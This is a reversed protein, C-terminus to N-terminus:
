GAGDPRNGSALRARLDIWSDAFGILALLTAMHPMALLLLAYVAVLWGVSARRLGVVAHVVALGQLFWAAVLLIDLYSLWHGGAAGAFASLGLVGLTAWALPRGLRLQHFEQRFGGPNYLMAQWWRGLLLAVQTQLLFGAAIVGPMWAAMTLLLGERDTAAVIGAEVLSQVFPELAERWTAVPDGGQTYQAAIVVLGMLLGVQLALGLSRSARLVGGLLWVPLWMMLVFSVVPLVVGLALLSLLACALTAIGTLLAGERLGHRLTVLAVVAASLLTVPPFLLSLLALVSAAMAAQMRGRMVFSALLRM